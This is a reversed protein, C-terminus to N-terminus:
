SLQARSQAIHAVAPGDDGAGAVTVAGSCGGLLKARADGYNDNGEDDDDDSLYRQRRIPM